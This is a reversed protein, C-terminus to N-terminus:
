LSMLRKDVFYDDHLIFDYICPGSKNTETSPIKEWLKFHDNIEDNNKKINDM